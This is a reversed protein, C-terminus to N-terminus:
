EKFQPLKPIYKEPEKEFEEKCSTMCFYVKKGKYETFIDKNIPSGMVPCTTQAIAAPESKKCGQLVFLGVLLLGTLLLIIKVQKKKGNM